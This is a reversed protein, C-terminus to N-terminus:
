RKEYEKTGRNYALPFKDRSVFGAKIEGLWSELVSGLEQPSVFQVSAIERGTRFGHEKTFATVKIEEGSQAPEFTYSRRFNTSDYKESYSNPTIQIFM